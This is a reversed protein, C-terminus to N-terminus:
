QKKESCKALYFQVHWCPIREVSFKVEMETFNVPSIEVPKSFLVTRVTHVSRGVFKGVKLNRFCERGKRCPPERADAVQTTLTAQFVDKSHLECM